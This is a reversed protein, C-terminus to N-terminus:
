PMVEQFDTIDMQGECEYNDWVSGKNKKIELWYGKKGDKEYVFDTEIDEKALETMLDVMEHPTSCKITDGVKLM